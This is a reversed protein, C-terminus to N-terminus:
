MRLGWYLSLALKTGVPVMKYGIGLSEVLEVDRYIRMLEKNRPISIRQGLIPQLFNGCRNPLSQKHQTVSKTVYTTQSCKM